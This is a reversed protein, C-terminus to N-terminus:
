SSTRQVEGALEVRSNVGLKAFIRRLRGDVTFRSMGLRLAVEQNTLGAAVQQAIEQESPTLSSWGVAVADKREALRLSKLAGSAVSRDLFGVIADVVLRQDGVFITHDDGPLEVFEAGPIHEALYRGDEIPIVKDGSRHLILTPVRVEGLVPRVDFTAASRCMAAVMGPSCTHREMRAAWQRYGDSEAMAPANAVLSVGTGWVRASEDAWVDVLEPNAAFDYEGRRTLKAFGGTIVVAQTRDPFDIAFQVAILSGFTMGLLTAREVGVADLVAKTDSALHTLRMRDGSATSRDSLGIGRRDFLVIRACSALRRVFSALAPEEWTVEVQSVFPSILVITTPGQGVTSYAIMVGDDTPAYRVEPPAM